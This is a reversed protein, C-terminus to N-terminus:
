LLASLKEANSVNNYWGLVTSRVHADAETFPVSMLGNIAKIYEQANGAILVGASIKSGEIGAANSICFRGNTLAHLLKLKVGTNNLSTLVHVHAHKILSQLQSEGPNEVVAINKHRQVISKLRKSINGGAIIFSIELHAFVKEALWQAANENESVAMNGHYLCYTGLGTQCAIKQWPIFCPIFHVSQYNYAHALKLVDSQSLCALTIKKDIEQQYKHLLRSERKFYMKKFFSREGNSLHEYYDAENNHVRIVIKRDKNKLYPIIGSCHFGELLIPHEDSNLRNILQSNIRSSVIYPLSIDFSPLFRKREYVFISHCLTALQEVGRKQNYNFYHLIVKRGSEALAKIKYFMDIAGGYNPPAPADLCVIHVFSNM